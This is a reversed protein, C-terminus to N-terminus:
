GGHDVERAAAIFAAIKKHDKIGPRVEVGSAVDVAYPRCDRIADGVNEPTLGGALIVPVTSTKVVTKAFERDFVIGAGMSEDVIVADCDAPIAHGRGIVRLVRVGPDKEFVFPHSIQIADPRLALIRGLEEKSRTHTVIVRTVFPRLKGFIERAQAEPVSRPSTPSFMVVGIANAGANEAVRADEVRTIGCIKIRM